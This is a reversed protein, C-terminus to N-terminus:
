TKALEGSAVMSCIQEVFSDSSLDVIDACFRGRSPLQTVWAQDRAHQIVKQKWHSLLPLRSVSQIVSWVADDDSRDDERLLCGCRTVLNPEKTSLDFIWAHVLEGFMSHKPLKGTVKDLRKPDVVQMSLGMCTLTTLNKEDGLPLSIRAFLEQIATDRGWISAFIFRGSHDTVASDCFLYPIEPIRDM